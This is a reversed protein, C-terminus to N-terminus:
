KYSLDIVLKERLKGKVSSRIVKNESICSKSIIKLVSGNNNRNVIEIKQLSPHSKLIALQSQYISKAPQAGFLEIEIQNSHVKPLIMYNISYSSYLALRDGNATSASTMKAIVKANPINGKFEDINGDANIGSSCAANSTNAVAESIIDDALTNETSQSISQTGNQENVKTSVLKEAQQHSSNKQSEAINVNDKDRQPINFQERPSLLSLSNILTEPSSTTIKEDIIIKRASEFDNLKVLAYVLNYITQPRYQKRSYLPLLYNRAKIYDQQLIAMMALNNIVIEENYFLGRAKEFSSIAESYKGQQALLVGQLNWLEGSESNKELLATIIKAAKDEQGLELCNKAQLLLYKEDRKKEVLPELYVNSSGFDGINYYLKSLHYRDDDNDNSSLKKRYIEILGQYDNLQTLIYEKQDDDSANTLGGSCGTLVALMLIPLIKKVM